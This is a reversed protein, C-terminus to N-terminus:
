IYKREPDLKDMGEMTKEYRGLLIWILRMLWWSL